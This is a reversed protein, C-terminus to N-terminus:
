ARRRAEYAYGSVMAAQSLAALAAGPLGAVGRKKLPQAVLNLYFDLPERRPQDSGRASLVGHLHHAGRGYNRHQRWYRRLTLPHFHDIVADAAFALAGGEERWRLGFDRDEAAALPFTQDFGGLLHFRMADCGINNSTFFPMDGTDANFWDYLFDCLDQSATAYRNAPLGNEVRGGVLREAVGGQAARLQTLWDARPRCDDDTFALFEADAEAAGRNRAAAPGANDQRIIRVRDLGEGLPALPEPSGDDVVIVEYDTETQTTLAELCAKLAAPRNYSPVIVATRPM